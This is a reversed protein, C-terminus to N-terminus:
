GKGSMCKNVSSMRNLGTNKLVSPEKWYISTNIIITIIVIIIIITITITIMIMIMIITIIIIIIRTKYIRRQM